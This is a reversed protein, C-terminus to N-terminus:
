VPCFDQNSVWSQRIRIPCDQIYVCKFHSWLFHQICISFIHQVTYILMIKYPVFFIFNLSVHSLLMLLLNLCSKICLSKISLYMICFFVYAQKKRFKNCLSDSWGKREKGLRCLRISLSTFCIIDIKSQNLKRTKTVNEHTLTHVEIHFLIWVMCLDSVFSHSLHFVPESHQLFTNALLCMGVAKRKKQRVHKLDCLLNSYWYYMIFILKWHINSDTPNSVLGGYRLVFLLYLNGCLLWLFNLWLLFVYWPYFFFLCIVVWVPNFGLLFVIFDRYDTAKYFTKSVMLVFTNPWWVYAHLPM